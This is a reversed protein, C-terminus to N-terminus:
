TKERAKFDAFGVFSSAFDNAKKRPNERRRTFEQQETQRGSQRVHKQQLADLGPNCPKGAAKREAFMKGM